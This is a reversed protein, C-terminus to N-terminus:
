WLWPANAACLFAVLTLGRALIQRNLSRRLGHLLQRTRSLEAAMASVMERNAYGLRSGIELQTTLEGVSGLAIRIHNRYRLGPGNAHGEAINSPVSVAARRMQAVLGYREDAPFRRCVDYTTIVLDMAAQWADLDRFSLVDTMPAEM